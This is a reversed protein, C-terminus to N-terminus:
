QLRAEHRLASAARDATSGRWNPSHLATIQHLAKKELSLCGLRRWGRVEIGSWRSEARMTMVERNGSRDKPPGLRNTERMWGAPKAQATRAIRSPRFSPDSHAALRTWLRASRAENQLAFGLGLFHRERMTQRSKISNFLYRFLRNGPSQLSRNMVPSQVPEARQM